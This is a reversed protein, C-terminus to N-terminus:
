SDKQRRRKGELLRDRASTPSDEPPAPSKPVRSPAAPIETAPASPASKAAKLTELREQRAPAAKERRPLLKLWDGVPLVLRRVSVDIPLLLLGALLLWFWLDRISTGPDEIARLSDRPAKLMRGGGGEALRELFERQGVFSRYEAPYAVAFGTTEVSKAGERVSVLYSGMLRADAEAQFQKPGTQVLRLPLPEGDPGSVVAQTSESIGEGEILIRAKGGALEVSTRVNGTGPQKQFSRVAQAWFRGFGDWGVWRAAWRPQADSTFALTRALGYQWTALLPDDKHTQMGVRALPRAETLCYALLPPVSDIGSLAEEGSAATPVFAGEEIAARTILAVDQTFIAPLRGAEEVIYFNGGGAKAVQQLFALDKGKGIAVVSTTIKNQKMRAVIELSTGYDDTDNGDALLIFHRVKSDERNLEKDARQITPEAYIGGGGSSLRRIQNYAKNKDTLTGFPLVFEIGDTSGAVALRDRPNLLRATEEAARAALRIKQVGGEMMQMSGSADVMILVSTSPFSKRQRIDLDVPLAEAVATGYWGGPLFSDEGGVMALGTGADRASQRLMEMISPHVEAANLDNLIVAEYPQLDEPRTPLNSASRQSVTLGQARLARVLSDGAGLGQLVMIQSPGGINVFGAGVNNRSDTDVAPELTVRYRFFGKTGLRQSLLFRSRGQSLNVRRREIVVGDRDLVLVAEQSRSADVTVRVEFPEDQRRRAPVAVEAISAEGEVAQSGLAVFDVQIGELRAAEVAQSAKGATENGDSLVVIRRGRGEPMVGSALRLASALDSGSGDVVASFSGLERRGGASSELTPTKGFVVVAALAGGPLERVAQRVFAESDRRDSERISDSRDVVYVVALGENSLRWQPGMLALILCAAMLGRLGFALAKRKRALGHVHRFSFWLGAIVPVFLLAYWPEVFRV